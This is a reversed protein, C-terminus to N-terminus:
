IVPWYQEITELLSRMSFPKTFYGVAGLQRAEHDVGATGSLVIIPITALAPRELLAKRLQWGDMVPMMLDVLILVPPSSADLKGLADIGNAATVTPYGRIELMEQLDTRIDDDDEVLLLYPAM